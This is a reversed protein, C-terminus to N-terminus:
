AGAPASCTNENTNAHPLDIAEPEGYGLLYAGLQWWLVAIGWALGVVVGADVIGRWPQPVARIVVVITLIGFVFGWSVIMQRRTSHFLSMCFPLALIVQLPRRTRGLHISRAVVRPCFRMQFGRYGEAYGNAIISLVYAAIELEGLSGALWPELAHPTLRRVANLLLVSVCAVGWVAILKTKWDDQAARRSPM